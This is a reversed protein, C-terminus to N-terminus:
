NVRRGSIKIIIIIGAVIFWLITSGLGLISGGSFIGLLSIFILGVIGMVVAVVGSTAGMLVIMMYALTGLFIGSYGFTAFGDPKLSYYASKMFDGDKYILVYYTTNKYTQPIVCEMTQGSSTVSESCVTNNMYADLQTVTYNITTDTGDITSFDFTIKRDDEDFNFTYALNDPVSFNLLEEIDSTEQLNIQCMLSPDTCIALYESSIFLLEGDKRVYFRYTVEETVLNLVTQGSDDTLGGEVAIYEGDGVYYRYPQIIAGEITLYYKDQYIILYQTAVSESLSYLNIQKPNNYNSQNYNQIYHYEKVHGDAWYRTTTELRFESNNLMGDPVCITANSSNVFTEHHHWYLSENELSYLYTDQEITGNVLDYLRSTEDFMTYNLITVNYGDGCLGVNSEYVTITDATYNYQVFGPIHYSWNYDISNGTASGLGDPVGFTKSFKYGETTSSRSGNGYNDGNWTLTASTTTPLNTMNLYFNLTLSQGEAVPDASETLNTTIYYIIFSSFLCEEFGISDNVCYTINSEGSTTFETSINYNCTVSLNTPEENTSYWCTDLNPDSVNFYWSINIPLSYVVTDNLGQAIEIEPHTADITLTRNGTYIEHGNDSSAKCSWNYEAEELTEGWDQSIDAGSVDEFYTTNETGDPNMTILTINDIIFGSGADISANCEFAISTSQTFLNNEPISQVISPIIDLIVVESSNVWNEGYGDSCNLEYRWADGVTLNESELIIEYETNNTIEIGIFSFETINDKLWHIDCYLTTSENDQVNYWGKLDNISLNYIPDTSNIDNRIYFPITNHLEYSVNVYTLNTTGSNFYAIWKIYKKNSVGIDDGNNTATWAGFTINDDSTAYKMSALVSGQYGWDVVSFDYDEGDGFPNATFNGATYPSAYSIIEINNYNSDATGWSGVYYAKLVFIIAKDTLPYSPTPNYYFTYGVGSDDCVIYYFTGATTTIQPTLSITTGSITGNALMSGGGDTWLECRTVGSGASVEVSTITISSTTNIKYGVKDSQSGSSGLAGVTSSDGVSGLRIKGDNLETQDYIGDWSGTTQKWEAFEYYERGAYTVILDVRQECQKYFQYQVCNEEPMKGWDMLFEVELFGLNNNIYNQLELINYEKWQGCEVERKEKTPKDNEWYTLNCIKSEFVRFRVNNYNAKGLKLIEIEIDKNDSDKLKYKQSPTIKDQKVNLLQLDPIDGTEKEFEVSYTEWDEVSSLREITAESFGKESPNYLFITSSIIFLIFALIWCIILKKNM